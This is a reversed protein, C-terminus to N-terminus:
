SESGTPTTVSASRNPCAPNSGSPNSAITSSTAARSALKSATCQMLRSIRSPPTCNSPVLPM